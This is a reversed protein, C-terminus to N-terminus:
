NSEPEASKYQVIRQFEKSPLERCGYACARSIDDGMVLLREQNTGVDLTNEDPNIGLHWALKRLEARGRGGMYDSIAASVFKNGESTQVSQPPSM